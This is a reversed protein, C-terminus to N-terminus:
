KWSLWDLFIAFFIPRNKSKCKNEKTPSSPNSESMMGHDKSQKTRIRKLPGFSERRKKTKKSTKLINREKKAPQFEIYSYIEFLISSVPEPSLTITDM